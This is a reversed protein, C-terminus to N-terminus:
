RLYKYKDEFPGFHRDSSYFDDLTRLADSKEQYYGNNVEDSINNNKPLNKPSTSLVDMKNEFAYTNNPEIALAKDYNEIASSLQNLYVLTDAKNTLIISNNPEIALAKDYYDLAEEYNGLQVSENAKNFFEQAKSLEAYKLNFQIKDPSIYNTNNNNISNMALISVSSSFFSLM